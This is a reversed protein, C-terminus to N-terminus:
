YQLQTWRHFAEPYAAAYRAVFFNAENNRGLARASQILKEVVKSEPSFHMVRHALENMTAANELTVPTVVLEAYQVQDRFLWSSRIKELTNHRYAPSRDAPNRYIQSIRHYDWGAYASAIIVVFAFTRLAFKARPGFPGNTKRLDGTSCSIPALNQAPAQRTRALLIVCLVVAVQFPGYWLPYELFSHLLIVALVGWAMQRGPDQELWPRSRWVLGIALGCVTLAFPLGLEVALHLPLNHANDLIECFRIGTYPTVFHAYDLEGWGWGTLPRLEILHIVNRWLVWRSACAASEDFRALLGFTAFGKGFLIPLVLTALSYGLVAAVVLRQRMPTRWAAFCWCVVFLTLLQLLGTRSSSCANGAGISIAIVFQWTRVSDASPRIWLLALLGINTLSAFQNRQRLNAFAEGTQAANVWPMWAEGLGGFQLVAIVSSALAAALWGGAVISDQKLTHGSFAALLVALALSAWAFLYQHIAPSPGSAFPNLWPLGVLLMGVIPMAAHTIPKM